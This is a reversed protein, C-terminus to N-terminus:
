RLIMKRGGFDIEQKLLQRTSKDIFYFSKTTNDTIDDSTEVRWVHRVEGEYEITTEITNKITATIVGTKSKPNYDFIHITNTYGEKLALLRILQPYFNSDFFPKDATEFIQTKINTQKDLYYGTIKKNFKLVMDRQQNYSSHYIPKFNNISVVTSDIWKSSSQSMNVSTIISINDKNKQIETLIDGIQIELSDQVMYWSMKHTESKLLDVNANNNIPSLPTEQSIGNLVCGFVFLLLHIKNKM